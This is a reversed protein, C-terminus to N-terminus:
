KPRAVSFLQTDGFFVDVGDYQPKEELLIRAREIAESGTRGLFPEFADPEEGAGRLYLTYTVFM